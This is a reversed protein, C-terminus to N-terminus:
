QSGERLIRVLNRPASKAPDEARAKEVKAFLEGARKTAGSKQYLVALQYAAAADDPDLQLATEFERQARAVESRKALLGGLLARPKAARPNARIASELALFAEKEAASGPEAGEEILAEALIWNVLYDKPSATRRRRLGEIADGLKKQEIRVLALAVYPLDVKPAAKTAALFESEADDLQGKLAFVAGRQLRVRYADPIHQLAVASVELSLDWNEHELCLLMLDLYNTEDRPEIRTATRLADYAEQIRGSHAYAQALLNCIEAKPAGSGLLAEGTQIASVYNANKVRALLLNRAAEYRDPFGDQALAFHSEADAYRQENFYIQGLHFHTVADVPALVAAQEFHAKADKVRGMALENVALNKLAPHFRPDTALAKQFQASAETKRGSSMLAIGLLNRAKLDAPARTLIQELLPIAAAYKGQRVQAVATQYPDTSGQPWAPAIRFLLVITAARLGAGTM